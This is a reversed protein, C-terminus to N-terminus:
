PTAEIQPDTQLITEFSSQSSPTEVRQTADVILTLDGTEGQLEDPASLPLRVIVCVTTSEGVELEQPGLPEIPAAPAPRLAPGACVSADTFSVELAAALASASRDSSVTWTLPFTGGNVVELLAVAATGPAIGSVDFPQTASGVEADLVAARLENRGLEEAAGFSADSREASRVFVIPVVGIAVAVAAVAAWEALRRIM